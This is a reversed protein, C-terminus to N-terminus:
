IPPSPPPPPPSPDSPPPPPTPPTEEAPPPPPPAEGEPPRNLPEPAPMPPPPPLPEPKFKSRGFILGVKVQVIVGGFGATSVVAKGPNGGTAFAPVSFALEPLIKFIEGIAIAYGFTAGVGLSYVNLSGTADGYAFVLNNFRPGFVAENGRLHKIGVRIPVALNFSTITAQPGSASGGGLFAAGLTPAVAIALWDHEPPTLLVKTQAEILSWGTRVGLDFRDTVGYRFSVDFHPIPDQAGAGGPAGSAGYIGPEASVQFNGKGLTSATQVTGMSLCSSAATLVGVMVLLRKM